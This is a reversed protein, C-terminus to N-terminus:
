LLVIYLCEYFKGTGLGTAFVKFDNVDSTYCTCNFLATDPLTVQTLHWIIYVVSCQVSMADRQASSLIGFGDFILTSCLLRQRTTTIQQSLPCYPGISVTASLTQGCDAGWNMRFTNFPASALVGFWSISFSVNPM